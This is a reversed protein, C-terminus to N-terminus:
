AFCPWIVACIVTIVCLDFARTLLDRCLYMFYVNRDRKAPEKLFGRLPDHIPAIHAAEILQELVELFAFLYNAAIRAIGILRDICWRRTDM